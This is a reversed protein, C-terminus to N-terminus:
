RPSRTPARFVGASAPSRAAAPERAAEGEAERFAARYVANLIASELVFQIRLSLLQAASDGQTELRSRARVRTELIAELESFSKGWTGSLDRVAAVARQEGLEQLEGRTVTKGKPLEGVADLLRSPAESWPRRFRGPNKPSEM